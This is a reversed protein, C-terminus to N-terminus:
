KIKYIYKNNRISIVLEIGKADVMENPVKLYVYKGFYQLTEIANVIVVDHQKNDNDIYSIKGYTTLFDIMDKGAFDNSSFGLSLIKEEGRSVFDVSSYRCLDATCIEKNYTVRDSINYEDFIVEKTNTGIKFKVEDYLSYKDDLEVETMDQLKLKIKRLHTTNDNNFEQYYLAFRKINDQKKVRYILLTRFEEDKSITKDDYAVGLDKFMAGYTKATPSYNSIGNMVHFRDFNIKRKEANNKITVDLIVFNYDKYAVEGKYDFDTYYSNNIKLEYGSTNINDGQKYTKNTIFIFQYSKYVIFLTFVIVVSLVLKKHEQYYYTANRKFRKFFRKFSAKDIDINIEMEDRDSDQLELYEADSKFDFKNLDLGLIRVLLILFTGYQPVLLILCIDRIARSETTQIGGTYSAFFSSTFIYTFFLLIYTIIPLIYMKWPKNKKRLLVLIAVMSAVIFVLFIYSLVTIYKSIPENFVDYTGLIAFDKMFSYLQTSKYIVYSCLIFLFIHIRKFNKILFAYPKRVIM